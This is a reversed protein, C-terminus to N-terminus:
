NRSVYREQLVSALHQRLHEDHQKLGVNKEFFDEDGVDVQILFDVEGELKVVEEGDGNEDSDVNYYSCTQNMGFVACGPATANASHVAGISIIFECGLSEEFM